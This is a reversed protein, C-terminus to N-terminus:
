RGRCIFLSFGLSTLQNNIVLVLCEEVVFYVLHESAALIHDVLMNTAYPGSCQRARRETEWARGSIHM